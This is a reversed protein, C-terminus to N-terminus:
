GRRDLPAEADYDRRRWVRPPQGKADVMPVLLPATDVCLDVHTALDFMAPAIFLIDLMLLGLPALTNEVVVQQDHYGDLRLVLLPHQVRRFALTCPTVGVVEGDQSVTAGSPVSDIPVAFTWPRSFSACSALALLLMAAVSRM